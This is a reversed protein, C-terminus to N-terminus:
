AIKQESIKEEVDKKDEIKVPMQFGDVDIYTFKEKLIDFSHENLERTQDIVRQIKDRIPKNEKLELEESFMNLFARFDGYIMYLPIVLKDSNHVVEHLTKSLPILGVQNMYHIRTAEEALLMCNIEEGTRIARDLVLKIIDFLTLPAHHVEIRIKKNNSKSINNFFACADMGVNARLYAIYDSYEMSARCLAEAHKVIAEKETDTTYSEQFEFEGPDDMVVVEINDKEEPVAKLNVMFVEM